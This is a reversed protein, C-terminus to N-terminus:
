DRYWRLWVPGLAVYLEFMRHEWTLGLGLGWSKLSFEAGLKLKGTPEGM